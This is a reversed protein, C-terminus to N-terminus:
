PALREVSLCICRCEGLYRWLSVRDIHSLSQAVSSVTLQRSGVAAARALTWTLDHPLQPPCLPVAAPKRRTSRNVRGIRMGGVTGYEDDIMRPQYLLGILPRRVFHVWDLGLGLFNFLFYSVTTETVNGACRFMKKEKASCGENPGQGVEM